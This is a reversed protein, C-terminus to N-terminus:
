ELNDEETIDETIAPSILAHLTDIDWTKGDWLAALDPHSPLPLYESVLPIFKGWAMRGYAVLIATSSVSVRAAPLHRDDRRLVISSTTTETALM